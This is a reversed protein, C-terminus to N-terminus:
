GDAEGLVAIREAPGGVGRHNKMFVAVIEARETTAIKVLGQGRQDLFIGCSTLHEKDKVIKGNRSQVWMRGRAMRCGETHGFLTRRAKPRHMIREEVGLVM